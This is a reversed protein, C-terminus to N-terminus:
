INENALDPKMNINSNHETLKSQMSYETISKALTNKTIFTLILCQWQATLTYLSILYTTQKQLGNAEANLIM